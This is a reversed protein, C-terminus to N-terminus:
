RATAVTHPTMAPNSAFFRQIGNFLAKAMKEQYTNSILKKEEEPNSLFATEVLISPIGLSKLVAFGAHEVHPKHLHNIESMEDLVLTGFSLSANMNAQKILSLIVEKVESDINKLDAGGVWKDDVSNERRALERAEVSSAGRHSLTFVSSGRASRKHFADAHISIFLDAKMRQAIRPREYLKIYYDGDRIMVARINPTRDILAKLKRAISLTVDKERTGSPGVAGPDKGGHGADIAVVFIRKKAPKRRKAVNFANIEWSEMQRPKPVNGPQNLKRILADIPDDAQQQIPEIPEIPEFHAVKGMEYVDVVLRHGAGDKPKLVFARPVVPTKLDLVLRLIHPKYRGVRVQRIYPDSAIIKDSLNEMMATLAVQELDIVVRGPSDLMSLAYQIPSDSEFTLRTHDVKHHVRVDKIVIDAAFLAKSTLFLLGALIILVYIYFVSLASSQDNQQQIVNLTKGTKALTNSM